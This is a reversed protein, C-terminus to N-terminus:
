SFLKEDASGSNSKKDNNDKQNHSCRVIMNVIIIDNINNIIKM